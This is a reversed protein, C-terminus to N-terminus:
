VVATIEGDIYIAEGGRRKLYKLIRAARRRGPTSSYAERRSNARRCVVYDKIAVISASVGLNKLELAIKRLDGAIERPEVYPVEILAEETGRDWDLGYVVFGMYKEVLESVLSTLLGTAPNPKYSSWGRSRVVESFSDLDIAVITGEVIKLTLQSDEDRTSDLAAWTMM